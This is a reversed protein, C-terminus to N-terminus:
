KYGNNKFNKPAAKTQEEIVRKVLSVLESETLRITKKKQENVPATKGPQQAPNAPRLPDITDNVGVVRIGGRYPGQCYFVLTESTNKRNIAKGFHKVNPNVSQIKKVLEPDPKQNSFTPNTLIYETGNKPYTLVTGYNGQAKEIGDIGEMLCGFPEYWPGGGHHVHIPSSQENMIKKM